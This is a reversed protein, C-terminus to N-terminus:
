LFQQDALRTLELASNVVHQIPPSAVFSVCMFVLFSVYPFVLLPSRGGKRGAQPKESCFAACSPGKTWYVGFYCTDLKEEPKNALLM